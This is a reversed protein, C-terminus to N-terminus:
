VSWLVLFAPDAEIEALTADDMEAEIVMLNIDPPLSDAAAGTVDRWSIFDYFDIITPRYATAQSKGDGSYPTLIAATIM